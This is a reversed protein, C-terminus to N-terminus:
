KVYGGSPSRGAAEDRVRRGACWMLSLVVGLVLGCGFVIGLLISHPMTFRWFLVMTDVRQFNQMVIIAGLVGIVIGVIMKARSAGTM